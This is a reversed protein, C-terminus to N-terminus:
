FDSNTFIGVPIHHKGKYKKIDSYAVQLADSSDVTIPIMAGTVGHLDFQSVFAQDSNDRIKCITDFLKLKGSTFYEVARENCLDVGCVM